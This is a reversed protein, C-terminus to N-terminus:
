GNAFTLLGSYKVKVALLTIMFSYIKYSHLCKAFYSSNAFGNRTYILLVEVLYLIALM